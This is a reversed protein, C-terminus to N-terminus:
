KSSSNQLLLSLVRSTCIMCLVWFASWGTIKTIRPHEATQRVKRPDLVLGVTLETPKTGHLLFEMSFEQFVFLFLLPIRTVGWSSKCSVRCNCNAFICIYVVTYMVEFHMTFLYEGQCAARCMIIIAAVAVQKIICM